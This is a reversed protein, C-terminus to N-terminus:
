TMQQTRTVHETLPPRLAPRQCPEPSPWRRFLLGARSSGAVAAGRGVRGGTRRASPSPTQAGLWQWAGRDTLLRCARVSACCRPRPRCQEVPGARVAPAPHGPPSDRLCSQAEHTRLILSSHTPGPCLATPMVPTPPSPLPRPPAALHKLAHTTRSAPKSDSQLGRSMPMSSPSRGGRPCGLGGGSLTELRPKDGSISSAEPSCLDLISSVLRRPAWPGRLLSHDLGM